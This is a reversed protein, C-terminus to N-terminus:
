KPSVALIDGCLLTDCLSRHVFKDGDTILGKDLLEERLAEGINNAVVLEVHINQPVVHVTIIM